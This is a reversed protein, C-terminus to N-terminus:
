KSWIVGDIKGMRLADILDRFWIDIRYEEWKHSMRDMVQLTYVKGDATKVKVFSKMPFKKELSRSIACIGDRVKTNTATIFPTSDTECERSTYGTVIVAYSPNGCGDLVTPTQVIGSGMCSRALALFIIMAVIWRLLYKINFPKEFNTM